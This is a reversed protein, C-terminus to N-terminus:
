VYLHFKRQKEKEKNFVRVTSYACEMGNCQMIYVRNKVMLYLHERITALHRQNKAGGYFFIGKYIEDM